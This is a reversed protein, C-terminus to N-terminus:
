VHYRHIKSFIGINNQFDVLNACASGSDLDRDLDFRDQDLDVLDISFGNIQDGFRDNEHISRMEATDVGIWFCVCVFTFYASM